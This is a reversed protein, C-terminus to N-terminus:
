LLAIGFRLGKFVFYIFNFTNKWGNEGVLLLANSKPLNEAKMWTKRSILSTHPHIHTHLMPPIIIVPSSQLVRGFVVGAAAKDVLFRVQVSMPDFVNM